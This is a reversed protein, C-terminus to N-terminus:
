CGSRTTCSGQNSAGCTARGAGVDGGAGRPGQQLSRAPRQRPAAQAGPLGHHHRARVSRLRRCRAEFAPRDRQRERQPGTRVPRLRREGDPRLHVADAAAHLRAQDAGVRPHHRAAAAVLCLLLDHVLLGSAARRHHGSRRGSPPARHDPHQPRGQGSLRRQHPRQPRWRHRHRRVKRQSPTSM